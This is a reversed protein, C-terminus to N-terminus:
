TLFVPHTIQNHLAFIFNEGRQLFITNRRKIHAPLKYFLAKFALLNGKAIAILQYHGLGNHTSFSNSDNTCFIGQPFTGFFFFCLRPLFIIVIVIVWDITFSRIHCLIVVSNQTTSRCDFNYCINCSQKPQLSIRVHHGPQM